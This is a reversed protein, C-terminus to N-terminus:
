NQMQVDWVILTGRFPTKLTEYRKQDVAAFVDNTVFTLNGILGRRQSDRFSPLGKGREPLGTSSPVDGLLLDKFIHANSTLGLTKAARKMLQIKPGVGQFVGVGNDLFTFRARGRDPECFVTTWWTEHPSQPKAAHEFTNTMGELLARYVAMTATKPTGPMQTRVVEILTKATKPEVKRSRRRAIQGREVHPPGWRRVSVYRQFGSQLLIARARDDDPLSGHASSLFRADALRAVLVAIAESGISTVKRLDVYVRARARGAEFVSELFTITEHPNEVVSLVAPAVFTESGTLSAAM